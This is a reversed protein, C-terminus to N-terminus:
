RLRKDDGIEIEGGYGLVAGALPLVLLDLSVPVISFWFELLLFMFGISVCGSLM